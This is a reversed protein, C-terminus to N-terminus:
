GSDLYNTTHDALAPLPLARSVLVRGNSDTIAILHL